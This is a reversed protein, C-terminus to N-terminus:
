VSIPPNNNVVVPKDNPRVVHASPLYGGFNVCPYLFSNKGMITGPNTVSNCGTQSNDGMIAGFKHLGTSYEKQDIKLIVDERDFRLNACKTGAGLNVKNGLISDGVYAFHAAQTGDLFISHKIETDHGIVCQNGAIFDGRIYAGQRITCNEGIICPGKIYAGPEIITGKGISIKEPNVLYVANSIDVEIIGLPYQALYPKIKSLSEWVFECSFLKKHVFHSLDFLSEPYFDNMPVKHKIPMINNYDVLRKLRFAIPMDLAPKEM